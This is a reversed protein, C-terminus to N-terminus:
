ARSTFPIASVPDSAIFYTWGRDYEVGAHLYTFEQPSLEDRTSELWSFGSEIAALAQITNEESAKQWQGALYARSKCPSMTIVSTHDHMDQAIELADAWMVATAAQTSRAPGWPM